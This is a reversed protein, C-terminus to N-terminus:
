YVRTVHFAFMCCLCVCVRGCSFYIVIVVLYVLTVFVFRVHLRCVVTLHFACNCCVVAFANVIVRFLLRVFALSCVLLVFAFCVHFRCVPLKSRLRAVCLCLRM